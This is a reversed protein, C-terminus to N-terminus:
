TQPTIDRTRKGRPKSTGVAIKAAAHPESLGVSSMASPASCVGPADVVLAVLLTGDIDVLLAAVEEVEDEGVAVVVVDVVDPVPLAPPAGLTGPVVVPGLGVSETVSGPGSSGSGEM